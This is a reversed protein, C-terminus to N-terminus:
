VKNAGRKLVVWTIIAAVVLIAVGYLSNLGTVLSTLKGVLVQVFDAPDGEAANASGVAILSGLGVSVRTLLSLKGKNEVVQTSPLRQVNEM